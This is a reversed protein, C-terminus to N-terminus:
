NIGTARLECSANDTNFVYGTACYFECKAGKCDANSNGVIKSPPAQRPVDVGANECLIANQPPPCVFVCEEQQIDKSSPRKLFREWAKQSALPVLVSHKGDGIFILKGCAGNMNIQLSQGPLVPKYVDYDTMKDKGLLIGARHGHVSYPNAASIDVM